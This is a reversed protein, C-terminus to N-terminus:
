NGFDFNFSVIIRDENTENPETWHPLWSPFLILDGTKPSIKQKTGKIPFTTNGGIMMSKAVWAPDHFIIDGCGEHAKAYYVGSLICKAHHHEPVFSKEPYITTWINSITMQGMIHDVDWVTSIMEHSWDQLKLISPFWDPIVKLNTTAYSTVGKKSQLNKDDTITRRNWENGVLAAHNVDKRFEEVLGLIRDNSKKDYFNGMWLPVPFIEQLFKSKLETM